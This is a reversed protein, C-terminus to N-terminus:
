PPADLLLVDVTDVDDRGRLIPLSLMPEFAAVDLDEVFFVTM